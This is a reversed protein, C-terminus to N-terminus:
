KELAKVAKKLYLDGKEDDQDMTKLSYMLRYRLVDERLNVVQDAIPTNADHVLALLLFYLESADIMRDALRKAYLGQDLCGLLSQIVGYNGIYAKRLSELLTPQTM